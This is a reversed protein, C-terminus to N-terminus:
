GCLKVRVDHHVQQRPSFKERTDSTLRAECLRLSTPDHTREERGYGVHMLTSNHVSIELRLNACQRM